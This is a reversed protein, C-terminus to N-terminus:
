LYICDILCIFVYTALLGETVTHLDARDKDTAKDRDRDKKM